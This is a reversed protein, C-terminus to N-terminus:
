KVCFSKKKKVFTVVMLTAKLMAVFCVNAHWSTSAM